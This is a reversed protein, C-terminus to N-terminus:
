DIHGLIGAATRVAMEGDHVPIRGQSTLWSSGNLRALDAATRLPPSCSGRVRAKALFISM